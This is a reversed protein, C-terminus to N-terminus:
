KELGSGMCSWSVFAFSYGCWDVVVADSDAESSSLSGVVVGESYFPPEVEVSCDSQSCVHIFLHHVLTPFCMVAVHCRIWSTGLASEHVSILWQFLYVIISRFNTALSM